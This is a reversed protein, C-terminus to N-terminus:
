KTSAACPIDTVLPMNCIQSWTSAAANKNLVGGSTVGLMKIRDGSYDFIIEDNGLIVVRVSNSEVLYRKEPYCERQGRQDLLMYDSGFQYRPYDGCDAAFVRNLLPNDLTAPDSGASAPNSLFLYAFTIGLAAFVRHFMTM